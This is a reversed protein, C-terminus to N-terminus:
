LRAAVVMFGLALALLAVVSTAALRIRRQLKAMGTAPDQQPSQQSAKVMKVVKRASPLSVGLALAYAVLALSGGVTIGLGRTTTPSLIALNDGFLGFVLLIGMVLTMTASVTVYRILRPFLQLVLEGRSASSLGAMSPTLVSVLFMATGMWGVAFIIHLWALLVNVEHPLM